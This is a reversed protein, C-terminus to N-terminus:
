FSATTFPTTTATPDATITGNIALNRISLEAMGTLLAPPTLLFIFDAITNNQPAHILNWLETVTADQEPNDQLYANILDALDLDFARFIIAKTLITDSSVKATEYLRALAAPTGSDAMDLSTVRDLADRYSVTDATPANAPLGFVTKELAELRTKQGGYQQDRLGDLQDKLPVYLKALAIKKGDLTLTTGANIKAVAADYTTRLETATDQQTTM